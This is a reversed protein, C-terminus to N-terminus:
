IIRKAGIYHNRFYRINLDGVVIKGWGSSANLFKNNGIYIGVHSAGRKYTQFFVLDGKNLNRRSVWYGKKFQNAATRPVIIENRLLVYHTYGSCDFGRPSTGGWVYPVGLYRRATKLVMEKKIERSTYYGVIGDVYLGKNRQFRRVSWKTDYGFYGTPSYKFYGLARLDWQLDNVDWNYMGTRLLNSDSYYDAYSNIKFFALLFFVGFFLAIFKKKM